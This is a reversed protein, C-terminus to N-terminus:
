SERNAVVKRSCFGEYGHGPRLQGLNSRLKQAHDSGRLGRGGAPQFYSRESHSPPPLARPQERGGAPLGSISRVNSIDISRIPM